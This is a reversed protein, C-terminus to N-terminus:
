ITFMIMGAYAGSFTYIWYMAISGHDNTWFTYYIVAAFCLLANLFFIAGIIRLLIKKMIKIKSRLGFRMISGIITM